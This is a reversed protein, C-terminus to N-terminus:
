GFNEYRSDLKKRKFGHITVTYLGSEIYIKQSDYYFADTNGNEMRRLISYGLTTENINFKKYDWNSFNTISSIWLENDSIKLNFECKTLLKEWDSSVFFSSENEYIDFFFDNHTAVVVPLAAGAEMLQEAFASNEDFLKALDKNRVKKEKLFNQLTNKSFLFLVYGNSTIKNM